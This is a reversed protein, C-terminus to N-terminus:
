LLDYPKTVGVLILENNAREIFKFQKNYELILAYRDSSEKVIQDFNHIYSKILKLQQYEIDFDEPNDGKEILELLRDVKPPLSKYYKGLLNNCANQYKSGDISLLQAASITKYKAFIQSSFQRQEEKTEGM